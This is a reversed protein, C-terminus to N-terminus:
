SFHNKRFTKLFHCFKIAIKKVQEMSNLIIKKKHKNENKMGLEEDSEEMNDDSPILDESPPRKVGKGGEGELRCGEGAGEMRYAEVGKSM